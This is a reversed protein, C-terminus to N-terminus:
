PAKWKKYHVLKELAMQIMKEVSDAPNSSFTKNPRNAIVVNVSCCNHGLIEHGLGYLASTEMEMNAIRIGHYRFTALKDILNPMALKYRLIRGQPAYFGAASATIGEICTDKFMNIFNESGEAIYPQLNHVESSIHQLFAQTLAAVNDSINRQYYQM